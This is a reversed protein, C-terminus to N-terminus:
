SGWKTTMDSLINDREADTARDQWYGAEFIYGDFLLGGGTGTAGMLIEDFQVSGQDSPSICDTLTATLASGVINSKLDFAGTAYNFRSVVVILQNASYGSQNNNFGNACQDIAIDHEDVRVQVGNHWQNGGEARIGFLFNGGGSPVKYVCVLTHDHDKIASLTSSIGGLALFSSNTSTFQLGPLGNQVNTKYVPRSGSTAQVLDVGTYSGTNKFTGVPDNNAAVATTAGDDTYLSSLNSADYHLVAGNSNVTRLAGGGASATTTNTLVANNSSTANTLTVKVDYSTGASLSTITAAGSGLGTTTATAYSGGGTPTKVEVLRSAVTGGGETWTLPITTSTVTGHALSSITPAALATATTTNTLVANNSSTANTVTVRVDYSTNATLGTITAAGSGLGTTTASAYSGGGTPTKVEVTRSAVTGGGETWTLPITTTTVTGHALSAITPAALATATTTNTLVANNSSTANTVTVRVDYSTNATLGTITATGSGLGTTTATAYSGGGTPTKVEVTRSAVTGGGETWTLPITTTTVTGHALSSITPAALTAATTINTITTSNSGTTNTVTIQFDYATNATLGTVTAAGASLGSTTASSYSGSGSPTRLQVTRSAVTGGETWTLAVSTNGPTGAAGSTVTPALLAAFSLQAQMYAQLQTVTAKYDVGSRRLVVLDSGQLPSTVGTLDTVAAGPPSPRYTM